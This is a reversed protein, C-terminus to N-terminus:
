RKLQFRRTRAYLTVKYGAYRENENCVVGQERWHAPMNEIGVQFLYTEDNLWKGDNSDIHQLQCKNQELNGIDVSSVAGRDLDIVNVHRQVEGREPVIAYREAPSWRIEEGTVQVLGNASYKSSRAVVSRNKSDIIVWGVGGKDTDWFVAHFYGRLPSPRSVHLELSVDLSEFRHILRNKYYVSGGRSFSFDHANSGPRLVLYPQKGPSVLSLLNEPNWFPDSKGDWYIVCWGGCDKKFRTKKGQIVFAHEVSKSHCFPFDRVALADEYQSRHSVADSVLGNYGDGYKEQLLRIKEQTPEIFIVIPNKYTSPCDLAVVPYADHAHFALLCALIHILKRIMARENGPYYKVTM